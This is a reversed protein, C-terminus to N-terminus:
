LQFDGQPQQDAPPASQSALWQNFQEVTDIYFPAKMQYHNGGCLQACVVEAGAQPTADVANLGAAKLEAINEETFGGGKAVIVKGAKDKYEVASVFAAMKVAIDAGELSHSKKLAARLDDNNFKEANFWVPVQVGPIADQKVRLLPIFFSHIVDKSSIRVYVDKGQPVHMEPSVIDDKANPDSSDIGLPNAEGPNVLDPRTRGFKGDPGPYHFSWAFQEGVARIEVAMPTGSPHQKGDNAFAPPDNKYRAWAPISFGVLLVVEVIGVFVEAYKSAKGSPLAYSAKHGARQRFRLLCYVFFIGWGIFLAAMFWHIFNILSDVSHGHASADWPLWNSYPKGHM